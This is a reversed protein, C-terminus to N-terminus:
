HQKNWPPNNKGIMVKELIIAVDAAQKDSGSILIEIQLQEHYQYMLTGSKHKRAINSDRRYDSLRKRFGGNNWEIARGIYVLNGNLFARYLGVYKNYPTLQVSSLTGISLWERDWESVTKGGIKHGNSKTQQFQLRNSIEEVGRLTKQIHILLKNVNMDKVGGM